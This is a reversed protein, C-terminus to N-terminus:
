LKINGENDEELDLAFVSNPLDLIEVYELMPEYGLRSSMSSSSSSLEQNITTPEIKKIPEPNAQKNEESTKCCCPKVECCKTQHHHNMSTTFAKTASPPCCGHKVVKKLQQLTRLCVVVCCPSKGTEDSCECGEDSTPMVDRWVRAISHQPGSAKICEFNGTDSNYSVPVAIGPASDAEASTEFQHYETDNEELLDTDINIFQGNNGNNTSINIESSKNNCNTEYSSNIILNENLISNGNTTMSMISREDTSNNSNIYNGNHNNVQPDFILQKEDPLASILATSSGILHSEGELINSSTTAVYNGIVLTNQKQPELYSPPITPLESFDEVEEREVTVCLSNYMSFPSTPLMPSIETMSKVENLNNLQSSSTRNLENACGRCDTVM